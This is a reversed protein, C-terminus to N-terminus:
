PAYDATGLYASFQQFLSLLEPLSKEGGFVASVRPDLSLTPRAEAALARVLEREVYTGLYYAVVEQEYTQAIEGLPIGFARAVVVRLSGIEMVISRTFFADNPAQDMPYISGVDCAGGDLCTNNPDFITGLRWSIPTSPLFGLWLLRAALRMWGPIMSEMVHQRATLDSTAPWLFRPRGVANVRAPPGPYYYAFIGIGRALHPGVREFAPGSMGARLRAVVRAHDREALRLVFLPVPLKLLEGYHAVHRAQVRLALEAEGMAEDLFVTGPAKGESLPFHEMIPRPWNGFQRSKMWELYAEFDPLLPESGKLVVVDATSKDPGLALCVSRNHGRMRYLDGHEGPAASSMLPLSGARLRELPAAIGPSAACVAAFVDPAATAVDFVVDATASLMTEGWDHAM